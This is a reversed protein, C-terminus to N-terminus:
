DKDSKGKKGDKIAEMIVEVDGILKYANRVLKWPRPKYVQYLPYRPDFYTFTIENPCPYHTPDQAARASHAYPAGLMLKGDPKLVRWIEDIVLIRYRPEIHEYVHNMLVQLCSNSPIPWPLEQIDHVIDVNKHKRIDMGIWNKQRTEGCGVDLNIGRKRKFLRQLEKETM